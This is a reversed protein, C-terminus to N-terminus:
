ETFAFAVIEAIQKFKEGPLLKSLMMLDIYV